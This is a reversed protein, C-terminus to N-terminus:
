ASAQLRASYTQLVADAITLLPCNLGAAEARRRMDGVLHDGEIPLGAQMDRYMSSNFGSKPNTLARQFGAIAQPHMPHGSAQATDTCERLLQLAIQGGADSRMYEGVTGQLLCNAAGLSAMRCFKDWMDDMIRDSLEIDIGAESMLKWAASAVKHQSPARAGISLSNYANSVLIETPSAQTAITRAVGGLVREHGFAQDLRDLHRLGNLLPLIVTNKGVAPTIDAIVSELAPAKNALVILDFSTDLQAATLTSPQIHLTEGPLALSLGHKDVLAKRAPRLLFHVDAGHRHLYAGFLAGVAGAGVFLIKM